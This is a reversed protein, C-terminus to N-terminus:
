SKKNFCTATVGSTEPSCFECKFFPKRYISLKNTLCKKHHLTDLSRDNRHKTYHSPVGGRFHPVGKRFDPIGKRFHPVRKRFHPVRRRFNPVCRRFHPIGKRFNPVPKRFNPVAKRFNPVGKRFTPVSKLLPQLNFETQIFILM